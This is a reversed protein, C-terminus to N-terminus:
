RPELRYLLMCSRCRLVKAATAEVVVDSSRGFLNVEGLRAHGFLELCQFGIEPCLKEVSRPASQLQRFRPSTQEIVCAIEEGKGVLCPRCDRVRRAGIEAHRWGAATLRAPLDAPARLVDVAARGGALNRM